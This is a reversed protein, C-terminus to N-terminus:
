SDKTETAEVKRLEEAREESNSIDLAKIIATGLAEAETRAQAKQFELYATGGVITVVALIGVWAYKRLFNYLRDRRVEETVEEIFSDTDSVFLRVIINEVM